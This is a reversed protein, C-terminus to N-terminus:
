SDEYGFHLCLVVYLLATPFRLLACSFDHIRAQLNPDNFDISSGLDDLNRVRMVKCSENLYGRARSELGPLELMHSCISLVFIFGYLSSPPHEKDGALSIVKCAAELCTNESIGANLSQVTESGEGEFLLEHASTLIRWNRWHWAEKSEIKDLSGLFTARIRQLSPLARQITEDKNISQLIADIITADPTTSSTVETSLLTQLHGELLSVIQSATMSGELLSRLQGILREDSWACTEDDSACVRLGESWVKIFAVLDRGNAYVQMLPMTILETFQRLEQSHRRQSETHLSSFRRASIAQILPEALNTSHGSQGLTGSTPLFIGGDIELITSVLDWQVRIQSRANNGDNREQSSSQAEQQQQVLGSYAILIRECFGSSLERKAEKIVLILEVLTTIDTDPPFSTKPDEPIPLGACDAFVTFLTEAWATEEDKQSISGRPAINLALEFLDPAIHTLLLRNDSKGSSPASIRRLEVKLTQVSSMLGNMAYGPAVSRSRHAALFASHSPLLLHKAILQETVRLSEPISDQFDFDRKPILEKLQAYVKAVGVLCESTFASMSSGNEDDAELARSNWVHLMPDLLSNTAAPSDKLVGQLLSLWANLLRAAQVTTTRLVAKMHECSVDDGSSLSVITRLVNAVINLSQLLGYGSVTEVIKSDGNRKRKRSLSTTVDKSQRHILSQLVTEITSLITNANLLRASNSIPVHLILRQLLTWAVPFAANEVGLGKLKELLWRLVWEARHHSKIAEGHTEADQQLWDGPLGALLAAQRLREEFNSYDTDLALLQPLTPKFSLSKVM